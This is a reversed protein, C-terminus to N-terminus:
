SEEVVNLKFTKQVDEGWRVSIDFQGLKKIPKALILKGTGIDIGDNELSEQIDKETLAGFLKEKQAKAKMTIEKGDLQQAAKKNEELVLATTEKEKEMELEAQKANGATAMSVKKQPILFNMAYGDKVEKIQGKQGIGKVNELLVVKM